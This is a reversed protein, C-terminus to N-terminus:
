ALPALARLGAALMLALALEATTAGSPGGGTYCVTVGRDIMAAVDILAARAGTMGFMKLKPLRKSLSAPFATRERITLVIDFDALAKAVDDEGGFPTTFFEVDARARLPTWDACRLAVQQWDDLVAVRWTM